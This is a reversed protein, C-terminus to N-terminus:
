APNLETIVDSIEDFSIGLHSNDYICKGNVVILIQPSQHMVNYRLSIENSINRQAILDLFYAEINGAKSDDWKRELRNLAAASI